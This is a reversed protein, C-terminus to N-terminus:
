GDIQRLHELVNFAQREVPILQTQSERPRQMQEAAVLIQGAEAEIESERAVTMEGGREALEVPLGGALEAARRAPM